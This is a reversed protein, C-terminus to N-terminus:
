TELAYDTAISRTFTYRGCGDPFNLLSEDKCLITYRVTQKWSLILKKVHQVIYDSPVQAPHISVGYSM